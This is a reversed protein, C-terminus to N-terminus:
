HRFAPPTTSSTSITIITLVIIPPISALRQISSSIIIIPTITIGLWNRWM